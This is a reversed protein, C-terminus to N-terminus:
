NYLDGRNILEQNIYQLKHIMQIQGKYSLRKFKVSDQKYKNYLEKLTSSETRKVFANFHKM